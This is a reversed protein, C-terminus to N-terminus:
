RWFDDDFEILGNQQQTPGENFLDDPMDNNNVPQQNNDDAPEDYDDPDEQQIIDEPEELLPQTSIEMPEIQQEFFVEYDQYSYTTGLLRLNDESVILSRCAHLMEKLNGEVTYLQRAYQRAEDYSLFGSLLMRSLGHADQDIVIDFNRVLFNSFNYRAMEYLLQNQNVSDPQYALMFVYKVNREFRLTDIKTSDGSVSVAARLSWVDGMDFKGGHLTRGQQVGRLIMGAMESVESQPFEEVVQKMREMCSNADGDNLLSLGEIFLFKPRHQGLPFRSESLQANSRVEQHRDANFAEYTAAYLSDEIHVGFRQNEAFYPDSLLTTWQSEPFEGKLMALCRDAETTRGQRSYMLFLHYWVDDNHEYDPYDNTLRTLYKECLRLNDLKDKFIIGAHYLGDKIADHSAALQDETFPIQALYYERNHPDNALTDAPNEAKTDAISDSVVPGANGLSDPTEPHDPNDPNDPNDTNDQALNVVTRNVRQWDDVNERKGWQQEFSRKGQNVTQPNYFYWAGGAATQQTPTTSRNQQQQRNGIASQQQLAAATENEQRLREEEKEKKKLEEIIRDIIKLREAEPMKALRQLSDQLEVSSTHPVLEDLVKSRESLQKYDKRDKDLLGIAEGYCRQADAFKEREWYLNGLTLLLVGKEIGSRTAKKNGEEYANIAQVTDRQSLWINGIAYYVQDLYDKNNDSAAMRKLKRIMQRANGQAMVETQAIRANFEMEYPPNLRVVHRFADYAEQRNGQMAQIQGYLFWERAKQKRRKEHKIVKRLYPLAEEYRESRLYFDAYTYDWDKVARFHMTDRRQKTIVDEADYLWDLEVYSKALWARSIGLIAPQTQYLRGMYSFTAAAEEFQGSQFQSKGMLLWARWLFPNYERRSLWEIDKETKRRSKNWEPRAKISHLKIAKESKEIARDFNGKGLERSQKNGVTYLPILETYNDKNGNEKELSGEIFAQSGNFYTNYRANFSHWWRSKATNNKTSCSATLLLLTFLYFLLVSRGEKSGSEKSRGEKSRSEKSRGEKCREEKLEALKCESRSSCSACDGEKTVIPEDKGGISFLAAVAGLAVLAIIVILLFDM